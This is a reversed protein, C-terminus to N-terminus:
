RFSRVKFYKTSVDLPDPEVEEGKWDTSPGLLEPRLLGTRKLEDLKQRLQPLLEAETLWQSSHRVAGLSNIAYFMRSFFVAYSGGMTGVDKNPRHVDEDIWEKVRFPATLESITEDLVRWHRAASHEKSTFLSTGFDVIRLHPRRGSPRFGRPDHDPM